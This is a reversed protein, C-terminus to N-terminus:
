YSWQRPRQPQQGYFHRPMQELAWDMPGGFQWRKNRDAQQQKYENTQTYHPKLADANQERWENMQQGFELKAQRYGDPDQKPDPPNFVPQPTQTIRSNRRVTRDNGRARWDARAQAFPDNPMPTPRDETPPQSRRIDEDTDRKLQDPTRDAIAKRNRYANDDQRQRMADYDPDIQRRRHDPLQRPRAGGMRRKGQPNPDTPYRDPHGPPLNNRTQRMHDDVRDQQRRRFDDRGRILDDRTPPGGGVVRGGPRRGGWPGQGRGRRRNHQQRNIDQQQRADSQRTRQRQQQRREWDNPRNGYGETQAAGSGGLDQALNQQQGQQQQGAWGSRRPYAGGRQGREFKAQEVQEFTFDGPNKGRRDTMGFERSLQFKM